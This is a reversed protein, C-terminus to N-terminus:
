PLLPKLCRFDGIAAFYAYVRNLLAHRNNRKERNPDEVMVDEFFKDIPASLSDISEVILAYDAATLVHGLKNEPFKAEVEEHLAKYLAKEADNEFLKIDFESPSDENLIKGVRVGARVLRMSPDSELLKELCECRAIADPIDSLVRGSSCVAEIVERKIGREALKTRIRQLLFESLDTLAKAPDFGRKNALSPKIQDMLLAMLESVNIRYEGLGEILIDILGFAQRRLAYPDSSGSPRRGLAFLGVLSDLKDIVAAFRGVMDPPIPDDQSRPAYHNAIGEVVEVLEGERAAYWAGVYGQLEPLERVLNCVLDLKCLMLTREICLSYKPELMLAASLHRAAMCLRETKKLYSGLGEQFTLQDLAEKRDLLKMKQDDFFFFKGDALRAKIVRENGQKIQAQAENRDNNAVTIFYPLLAHTSTGDAREVPFYRQHHVMITEILTDPLELYDSSFEGVVAHPWELINSVEDLLAGKLQRPKGSLKSAAQAVQSEILSRREGPHVLVKAKRLSDVYADPSDIRLKEPALVRNGFSDRGSKITDLQIPLEDKDLISVIWRIPRSFKLESDGWRMLREGSLQTIAHPVVEKLVNSSPKGEIVLDAVLYEVGGIEERSLQEVTLGNKQAFGKAPPLANGSADFSSKVPPGKVKKKVTSQLAALGRVICALRRPTGMTEVSEFPVSAQTLADSILNKLREQAEPVHDAPLEETGIELLYNPM